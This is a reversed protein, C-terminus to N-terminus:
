AQAKFAALAAEFAANSIVLPREESSRLGDVMPNGTRRHTIRITPGKLQTRLKKLIEHDDRLQNARAAERAAARRSMGEHQVLHTALLVANVTRSTPDSPRGRQKAMVQREFENRPRKPLEGRLYMALAQDLSQAAKTPRAM